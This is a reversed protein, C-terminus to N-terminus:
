KAATALERRIDAQEESWALCDAYGLDNAKAVMDKWIQEFEEESEAYIAQWSATVIEDAVLNFEAKFLKEKKAEAYTTGPVLAWDVYTDIYDQFSTIEIGNDADSYDACFENFIDYTQNTAANDPWNDQNYTWSSTINGSADRIVTEPNTADADWTTSNMYPVGKDFNSVGEYIYESGAPFTTERDAQMATGLETLHPAKDEDYYWCGDSDNPDNNDCQPGYNMTMVGEPTYMWNIIIMCLEPYNTNAGITWCYNGGYSNLGYVINHQDAAAVPAVMKGQSLHDETNYYADGVYNFIDFFTTGNAMNASVNDWTNTSSNPDVLGKRYLENYFKLCRYYMGNEELTGQFEDTTVNYIGMCHEDWGYLAATAKVYMVMTGDWSTHLTVGYTENGEDDTPCIEKMKALVDVFDELTSIEPSGIQKYLDYRIWPGYMFAQHDGGASVANGLGYWKGSDTLSRNRYIANKLSTDKLASIYPAYDYVLDDEEWDYLLGANIADLYDDTVSGFMVIDGLDRSEMRTSLVGDGNTLMNFKVNFKELLIAGFWGPNIGADDNMTDSYVNLTIPDGSKITDLYENVTTYDLNEDLIDTVEVVGNGADTTEAGQTSEQKNFIDDSSSNNNTDTTSTESGCACLSLVMILSLILALGRKM